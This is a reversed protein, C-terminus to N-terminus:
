KILLTNVLITLTIQSLTIFYIYKTMEIIQIYNTMVNMYCISYGFKLKHIFPPINMAVFHVDEKM